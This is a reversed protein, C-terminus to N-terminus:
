AEKYGHERLVKFLANWTGAPAAHIRGLLQGTEGHLVYVSGDRLKLEVHAEGTDLGADKLEKNTRM